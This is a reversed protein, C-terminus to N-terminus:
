LNLRARAYALSKRVNEDEFALQQELTLGTTKPLPKAPIHRQVLALGEALRQAPADRM